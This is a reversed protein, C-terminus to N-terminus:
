LASPLDIGALLINEEMGFVKFETDFTFKRGQITAIKAQATEM